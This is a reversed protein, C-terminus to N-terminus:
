AYRRSFTIRIITVATDPKDSPNRPV